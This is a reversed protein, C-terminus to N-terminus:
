CKQVSVLYNSPFQGLSMILATEESRDVGAALWSADTVQPEKEDDPMKFSRVLTNTRARLIGAMKCVDHESFMCTPRLKKFTSALKWDSPYMDISSAEAKVEQPFMAERLSDMRVMTNNWQKYLEPVAHGCMCCLMERVVCRPREKALADAQFADRLQIMIDLQSPKFLPSAEKKAKKPRKARM